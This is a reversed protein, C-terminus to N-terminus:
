QLHNMEEGPATVVDPQVGKLEWNNRTGPLVAAMVSVSIFVQDNVVYFENHNAAGASAQGIIKARRHAQMVYAFAEAASATRKNILVYLPGDYRYASDVAVTRDVEGPGTGGYSELLTLGAPLFCGEFVLDIESGGGGNDRLDIILAKTRHVFAMAAQLVPLSEASINIQDLKIYGTDGKLIKVERFGYNHERAEPSHFFDDTGGSEERQARIGKVREPSYRMYLHGDQSFQHLITTGISDFAKWSPLHNFAGAKYQAKLHNAIADGKDAFVYHRKILVAASDVARAVEKPALEQQAKVLLPMCYLGLWIFRKM